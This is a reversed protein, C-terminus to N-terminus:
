KDRKGHFLELVRPQKGRESVHALGLKTVNPPQKVAKCCIACHTRSGLALLNRTMRNTSRLDM